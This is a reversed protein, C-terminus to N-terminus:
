RVTLDGMRLVDGSSVVASEREHEVWLEKWVPVHWAVYASTTAAVDTDGVYDETTTVVRPRDGGVRHHVSSTTTTGDFHVASWSLHVQGFDDVDVGGRADDPVEAHLVPGVSTVRPALAEVAFGRANGYAYWWATSPPVTDTHCDFIVHMADGVDLAVRASGVRDCPVGDQGLGAVVTVWTADEWGNGGEIVAWLGAGYRGDRGQIPRNVVARGRGDGGVAVDIDFLFGPYSQFGLDPGLGREGFADVVVDARPGPEWWGYSDDVVFGALEGFPGFALSPGEPALVPRTSLVTPAEGRAALVVDAAPDVWAVRITGAGDRAHATRDAYPHAAGLDSRIMGGFPGVAVRAEREHGPVVVDPLAFWDVAVEVEGAFAPPFLLVM